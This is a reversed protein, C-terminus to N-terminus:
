KLVLSVLKVYFLWTVYEHETLVRNSPHILFEICFKLLFKFPKLM